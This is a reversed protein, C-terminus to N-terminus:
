YIYIDSLGTRDNNPTGSKANFFCVRGFVFNRGMKLPRFLWPQFSKLVIGGQVWYSSETIYNKKVRSLMKVNGLFCKSRFINRNIIFNFAAAFDLATLNIQNLSTFHSIM